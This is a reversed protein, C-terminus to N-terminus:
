TPKDDKLINAYNYLTDARNPDLELSREYAKISLDIKGDVRRAAMGVLNHYLWLSDSAKAVSPELLTALAEPYRAEFWNSMAVPLAWRSDGDARRGRAALELVEETLLSRSSVRELLSYWGESSGYAPQPEPNM